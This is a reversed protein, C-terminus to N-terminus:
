GAKQLKRYSLQFHVAATGGPWIALQVGRNLSLCASLFYTGIFAARDQSGQEHAHRRNGPAM